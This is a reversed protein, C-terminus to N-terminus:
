WKDLVQRIYVFRVSERRLCHFKERELLGVARRQLKEATKSDAGNGREDIYNRVTFFPCIQLSAVFVNVPCYVYGQNHDDIFLLKTGDIDSFISKIGCTHRFNM